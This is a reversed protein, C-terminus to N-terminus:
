PQRTPQALYRALDAPTYRRLEGIDDIIIDPAPQYAQRAYHGQRVQVTVFRGPEARKFEALIRGKDDVAVYFAAPWRRFVEDLEDEKHAVILVQGEVAAALGSATIKLPQYAKDGDSLIVPLGVTKLYAITALADPYLQTAFPYEMIAARVQQAVAPTPCLPAFRDFTLPLDIVGTEARVEEYMQWFREALRPGLLAILRERFAEKLADNDLLTNDCDLLYVVPLAAGTPSTPTTSPTDGAPM